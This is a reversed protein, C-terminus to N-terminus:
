SSPEALKSSCSASAEENSCESKAEYAAKMGECESSDMGECEMMSAATTKEACGGCAEAVAEGKCCGESMVLSAQVAAAEAKAVPCQETGMESCETNGAAQMACESGDECIGAAKMACSESDATAATAKAAGDACCGSEPPMGSLSVATAESSCDSGSCDESVELSAESATADNDQDEQVQCAGFALLTIPLLFRIM